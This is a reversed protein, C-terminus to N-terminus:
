DGATPCHAYRWALFSRIISGLSLVHVIGIFSGAVGLGMAGIDAFALLELVCAVQLGLDCCCGPLRLLAAAFFCGISSM